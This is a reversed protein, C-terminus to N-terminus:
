GKLTTCAYEPHQAVIARHVRAARRVLDHALEQTVGLARAFSYVDRLADCEVASENLWDVRGLRTHEAEHAITLLAQAVPTRIYRYGPTSMEARAAPRTLRNAWACWGPQVTMRAAEPGYSYGAEGSEPTPGCTVTVHQGAIRDVQRQVAPLLRDSPDNYPPHPVAASAAPALALAVVAAGLTANVHCRAQKARSGIVPIQSLYQSPAHRARVPSGWSAFSFRPLASSKEPQRERMFGHKILPM